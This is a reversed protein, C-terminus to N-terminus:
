EVRRSGVYYRRWHDKVASFLTDVFTEHESEMKPNISRRFGRVAHFVTLVKLASSIDCGPRFLIAEGFTWSEQGDDERNVNGGLLSGCVRGGGIGPEVSEAGGNEIGDEM